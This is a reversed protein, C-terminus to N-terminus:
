SVFDILKVDLMMQKLNKMRRYSLDMVQEVLPQIMFNLSFVMVAIAVLQLVIFVGDSSYTDLLWKILITMIPILLITSITYISKLIKESSKLQPLVEDIQSVLLDIKDSSHVNRTTLIQRLTIINHDYVDEYTGVHSRVVKRLEYGFYFGGGSGFLYALWQVWEYSYFISIFISGIVLMLIFSFVVWVYWRLFRVYTSSRISDRLYDDFIIWHM